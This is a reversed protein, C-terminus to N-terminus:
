EAFTLANIRNKWGKLYKRQTSNRKVINEVYRLRASKIKAFLHRQNANNVATLTKTGVLGDVAVGLLTQIQRVATGIGSCWAWDVCINAVSQNTIGDAKFKDWYGSKFIHLWQEDTMAKLQEITADRGYFQRFTAITVGKNTAGGNDASDNVYGGEWRLIFPKLKKADAMTVEM